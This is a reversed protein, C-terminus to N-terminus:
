KKRKASKKSAPKRGRRRKPKQAVGTLSTVVWTGGAREARVVEMLGHAQAEELLDGFTSYGWNGESFDPQKRKMADKILSSYLTDRGERLLGQTTSLLFEFVERKDVPVADLSGTAGGKAEDALDEYFIFEDCNRILLRSSSNRMGVGIVSKNNERLKSVLPSFDSDGSVIVFTDLHPNGHCADMADVALRIDASNKGSVQPMPIEVLEVVAGHLDKMYEKHHSWDAYAKKVLIKGKELLRQLLLQIEFRVRADKAGLAINDFDMFLALNTERNPEMAVVGRETFGRARHAPAWTCIRM